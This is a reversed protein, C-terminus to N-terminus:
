MEDIFRKARYFDLNKAVEKILQTHERLAREEVSQEMNELCLWKATTAAGLQSLVKSQSEVSLTAISNKIEDVARNLAFEELKNLTGM